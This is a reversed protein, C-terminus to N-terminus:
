ASSFRNIGIIIDLSSMKSTLFKQCGSVVVENCIDQLEKEIRGRYEKCGESKDKNELSSIVRWANRRAGVVNKYAVSLLNRDETNIAAKERVARKM